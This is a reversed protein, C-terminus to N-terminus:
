FPVEDDALEIIQNAQDIDMLLWADIMDIVQELVRNRERHTRGMRRASFLLAALIQQIATLREQHEQGIM